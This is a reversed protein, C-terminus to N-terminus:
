KKRKPMPTAQTLQVFPHNMRLVALTAIFKGQTIFRKTEGMHTLYYFPKNYGYQAFAEDTVEAYVEEMIEEMLQEKLKGM